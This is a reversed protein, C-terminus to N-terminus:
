KVKCYNYFYVTDEEAFKRFYKTRFYNGADNLYPAGLTSVFKDVAAFNETIEAAYDDHDTAVTLTGGNVLKDRLLAIFWSKLLRRKTHKAKPWPDPFNVYFHNVSNDPLLRIFLEADFQILRTNTIKARQLRSVAKTFVKHFVEFGLWNEDPANAAHHAIFEGNGIGIEVNVPNNNGFIVNFDLPSFHVGPQLQDWLPAATLYLNDDFNLQLVPAGEITIGDYRMGGQRYSRYIVGEAETM